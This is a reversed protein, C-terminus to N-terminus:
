EDLAEIAERLYNRGMQTAMPHDPQEDLLEDIGVTRLFQLIDGPVQNRMGSALTVAPTNRRM